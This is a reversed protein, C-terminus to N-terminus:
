VVSDRGENRAPIQKVGTTITTGANSTKKLCISACEGYRAVNNCETERM